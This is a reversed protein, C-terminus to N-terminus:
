SQVIICTVNYTSLLTFVICKGAPRGFPIGDEASVRIFFCRLRKEHSQAPFVNDHNNDRSAPVSM